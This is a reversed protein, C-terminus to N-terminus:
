VNYCRSGRVAVGGLIGGRIIRRHKDEADLRGAVLGPKRDVVALATEERVRQV